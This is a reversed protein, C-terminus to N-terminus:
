PTQPQTEREKRWTKWYLKLRGTYDEADEAFIRKALPHVQQQLSQRHNEILHQIKGTTAKRSFTLRGSEIEEFLVGLDHDDGLLESLVGLESAFAELFGPWVPTLIRTHYWLIKVEKRLEHFSDISPKKSAYAYAKKGQKYIQELNTAFVAFSDKTIPLEPQNQQAEKFATLVEEVSKKEEFFSRSVEAQKNVLKKRVNNYAAKPIAKSDTQKLKDLTKIMVTADRVHSLMHGISRYRNNEQRFLENGMSKRVMRLVARIKKVRKRVEHIAKERDSGPNELSELASSIEEAWIRRINEAVSEINSLEYAM